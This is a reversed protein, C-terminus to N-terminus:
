QIYYRWKKLAATIKTIGTYRADSRGSCFDIHQHFRITVLRTV